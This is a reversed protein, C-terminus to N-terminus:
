DHADCLRTPEFGKIFAERIIAESPCKGPNKLLGTNRDIERFVIGDPVKFDKPYGRGARKMFETWIPLAARSGSLQLSMSPDDFGVWVGAVLDPTFGVFWADTYDSTTGTKGGAPRTFGMGRAARGTGNEIVGELQYVMQYAVAEDLVKKTRPLNEEIIKGDRDVVYKVFIPEARMGLAAWVGYASTLEFLTLESSGLALSPVGKLQNKIGMRRALDIVRRPGVKYYFFKATAVNISRELAKRLTVTGYFKGEYNRPAWVGAPTKLAWPSDDITDAPTAIKAEYAACYIFPKFVSGPQRKAQVARNFQSVDYDRGGVMARIYGTEPDIAMLAAQPYQLPDVEPNEPDLQEYPQLELKEDIKVLGDHIAKNAAEQMSMDLTTYIKLGQTYLMTPSYRRELQQRLFDVFYPAENTMSPIPYVGLPSNVAEHYQAETIFGRELMKRLVLNRRRLAKDPNRIPSYLTPSRPLAAILACEPLTLEWVPKRFYYKAAQQVGYIERSGYRGLDIFNLYRELIEDKSFRREIKIAILAEKIKRKLSIEPTLFLNKALQQTITSAGQPRRFNLTKLNYYMARAIGRISIGWHEYFQNDEIALFAKVLDDPVETLHVLERDTGEPSYLEAILEPEIFFSEIRRGAEDKIDTIVGDQLRLRVLQPKHVWHPYEFGRLYITMDGAGNEDVELTFEGIRPLAGKARIYELRKLKGMLFEITDGPKVECIDSYVKGPLKWSSTEKYELPDLPPLGKWYGIILGVVVGVSIHLVVIIALLLSLFAKKM